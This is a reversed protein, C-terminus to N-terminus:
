TLKCISKGKKFVILLGVDLRNAQKGNRNEKLYASEMDNPGQKTSHTRHRGDHKQHRFYRQLVAFKSQRFLLFARKLRALGRNQSKKLFLPLFTQFPKHFRSDKCGSFSVFRNALALILRKRL